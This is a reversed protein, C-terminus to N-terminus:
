YNDMKELLRKMLRKFRHNPNAGVFYKKISFESLKVLELKDTPSDFYLYVTAALSNDDDAWDMYLQVEYPNDSDRIIFNLMTINTGDLDKMAYSTKKFEEPKELDKLIQQIMKAIFQEDTAILYRDYDNIIEVYYSIRM